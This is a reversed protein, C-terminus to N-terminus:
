GVEGFYWCESVFNDEINQKSYYKKSIGLESLNELLLGWEQALSKEAIVNQEYCGLDDEQKYTSTHFNFYEEQFYICVESAFMDPLVITATVKSNDAWDPKANILNNSVNILRQACEIRVSHKVRNGLILGERVPIKWNYYKLSSSSNKLDPFYNDFSDSWKKLARLQRPVGRIKQKYPSLRRM